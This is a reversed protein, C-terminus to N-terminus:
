PRVGKYAPYIPDFKLLPIRSLSAQVADELGAFALFANSLAAEREHEISSTELQAQLLALRDEQGLQVTRRTRQEQMGQLRRLKDNAEHLRLLAARYLATSREVDSIAKAQTAEFRTQVETRHAEAEAIPVM